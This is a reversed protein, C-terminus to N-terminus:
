AGDANADVAYIGDAFALESGFRHFRDDFRRARPAVVEEFAGYRGTAVFPQAYLEMTLRPTFAYDLRTTLSVTTQDINAFVYHTGGGADTPQAVYSWPDRSKSYDPGVTLRLRSSPRLTAATGVGYSSGATEWERFRSVHLDGSLVRRDDSYIGGNFSSYAPGVFAPGGRLVDTRLAKLENDSGFWFGWNNRLNGNGNLNFGTTLREGGFNWGNWGNVSLTWSRFAGQPTFQGYGLWVGQLIWDTSRQFGVDNMELGPSRAHAYLGGRWHEGGVKELKANALWGTLSTRTSDYTLHPADPRQFYHGARTQIGAIAAASGSVRTGLVAGSLEYNGGAFRHRGDLGALYADRTLFSLRPDTDLSREMATAIGGIASNGGRFDKIARAVLYNTPPEITASRATTGDMWRVQERATLADILGLSWGNATKGSVKAAGLIRTADPRDSFVAGDPNPAQPTRGLRRSYFPMDNGFGTSRVYYPFAVNFSFIDSGETFFPRREAFFSEFATLNVESPDAEVQGFDPNVTATLTLNSTLGYKLDAGVDGLADNRHYFPNGSQLPARTVRAVTYPLVELRRVPRLGRLGTLEGFQSVFGSREPRVPSWDDVESRRAVERTLQLGWVQGAGAATTDSVGFRLQSLPIRFEATWGDGDVRAAAEWVADWGPDQGTDGSHLADAQVGAPNVAFSFATRRDHYSDLTVRAWDSSVGSLDRRGVPAAISDPHPDFMRLAVYVAAGDYLIRAETRYAAGAGPDPARQVFGTAPQAGAWAA